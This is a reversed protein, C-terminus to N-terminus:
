RLGGFTQPINLSGVQTHKGKENQDLHCGFPLVVIKPLNGGQRMGVEWKPLDESADGPLVAPLPVNGRGVAGLKAGLGELAPVDRLGPATCLPGPIRLRDEVM